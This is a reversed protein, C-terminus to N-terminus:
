KSESPPRKAIEDSALPTVGFSRKRLAREILTKPLRLM